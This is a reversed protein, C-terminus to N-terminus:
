TPTPSAELMVDRFARLPEAAPGARVSVELRQAAAIALAEVVDDASACRAVLQPRTAIMPNFLVCADEYGPSGPEHLLAPAITTM